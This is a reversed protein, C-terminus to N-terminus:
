AITKTAIVPAGFLDQCVVQGIEVPATVTMGRIAAMVDMMREKPVPVATKVSLMTDPRNEVRVVTTVTRMPHTCEDIAYKRGRDCSQGTVTLNGTEGEVTLQCGRPCIICILNRKM